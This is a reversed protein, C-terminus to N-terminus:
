HCTFKLLGGHTHTHTHTYIYIYIYIYLMNTCKKKHPDISFRKKKNVQHSSTFLDAQLTVASKTLM